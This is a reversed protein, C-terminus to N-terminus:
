SASRSLAARVLRDMARDSLVAKLFLRLRADKGVVYRTKPESSTVAHEVAEAVLDAPAARAIAPRVMRSFAEMLWGYLEQAEPPFAARRAEAEREGKDWIPTAIMGPEVVSVEIGFHAVEMRLADTLAELAFKSASYPGVFPSAIRGSISGINVIRGRARRLLPLCQQTVGLLGILNVDFLQRLDDLDVFELPGIVAVGANNVLAGLGDEGVAAAVQDRAAAVSAADTVDLLVPELRASGLERLRAADEDRRVGAFVRWGRQDFRQACALGIGTSAGTILISPM